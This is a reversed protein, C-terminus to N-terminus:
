PVGGGTHVYSQIHAVAEECPGTSPVAVQVIRRAGLLDLLRANDTPSTRSVELARQLFDQGVVAFALDDFLARDEHLRVEFAWARRENDPHGLRDGPDTCSPRGEPDLYADTSDFHQEIWSSVQARWADLTCCNAAVYAEREAGTSLGRGKILGLYM